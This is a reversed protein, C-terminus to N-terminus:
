NGGLKEMPPLKSFRQFLLRYDEVTRILKEHKGTAVLKGDRMIVIIDANKITALRHTIIFTTRQKLLNAIALQIKHETESDIASSADDLILIRPDVLLARAIAIRQKQGGSLMVGREGVITSYGDKFSVIFEHAQALKAVQEIEDDSADPRGFAINDRITTSFLFIEQEIMGLNSRLNDLSMEKICIGDITIKGSTPDYLRLLLKILTSKGSGPPGVLAVTSGDPIELTFDKIAERKANYSFNVKDFSISGKKGPWFIPNEAKPVYEEREIMEHIRKAGAFAIQFQFVAWGIFWTPMVLTQTLLIYAIMRDLALNGESVEWAGWYFSAAIAMITLIIPYYKAGIIGRQINCEKLKETENDFSLIEEEEKVFSRIERIGTLGEQLKSTLISNQEMQAESIPRLKTNYRYVTFIYFPTLYVLILVLKPDIQVVFYIYFIITFFVEFVFKFAPSVLMNIMRTDFTARAMIDGVKVRDHFEQSKSLMNAYFDQTINRSVRHAHVENAYSQVFDASARIMGASIIFLTIQIIRSFARDPSLLEDFVDGIFVPTLVTAGIFIILFLLTTLTLAKEKLVHRLVWFRHDSTDINKIIIFVLISLIISTFVSLEKLGIILDFSGMGLRVDTLELVGFTIALIAGGLSTIFLIRAIIKEMM